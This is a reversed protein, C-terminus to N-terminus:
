TRMAAMQAAQSLALLFRMTDNIVILIEEDVVKDQPTSAFRITTWTATIVDDANDTSYICDAKKLCEVIIQKASEKQRENQQGLATEFLAALKAISRAPIAEQATLQGKSALSKFSTYAMRIAEASDRIPYPNLKALLVKTDLPYTRM